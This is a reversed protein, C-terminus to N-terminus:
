GKSEGVNFIAGSVSFIRSAINNFRNITMDVSVQVVSPRGHECSYVTYIYKSYVDGVHVVANLYANLNIYSVFGAESIHRYVRQNLRRNM